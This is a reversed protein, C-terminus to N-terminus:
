TKREFIAAIDGITRLREIDELELQVGFREELALVLQIQQVSDWSAVTDPSDTETIQDVSVGFVAAAVEQVAHFATTTM